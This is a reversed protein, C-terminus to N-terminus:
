VYWLCGEVDTLITLSCRGHSYLLMELMSRALLAHRVVALMVRTGSAASASLYHRVDVSNVILVSMIGGAGEFGGFEGDEAGLVLFFAFVDGKLCFEVIGPAEYFGSLTGFM